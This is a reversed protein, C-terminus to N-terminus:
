DLLLLDFERRSAMELGAQGDGAEITDYGAFRLSDVIGRRIASDDEITLICHRMTLREDHRHGRLRCHRLRLRRLRRRCKRERKCTRCSCWCTKRSFECTPETWRSEM